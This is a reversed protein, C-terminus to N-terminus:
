PLPRRADESRIGDRFLDLYHRLYSDRDFDKFSYGPSLARYAIARVSTVFQSICLDVQLDPRLSGDEIGGRFIERLGEVLDDNLAEFSRFTEEGIRGPDIGHFDWYQEMRMCHPHEVWYSLLTEAWIRIRTLCDDTAALAEKQMEWRRGLDELHVRLLIDDRSKFYSYLTRRTYESAAAIADMNSREIGEGAFLSRAADLIFLQRAEREQSKRPM